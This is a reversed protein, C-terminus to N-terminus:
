RQLSSTQSPSSSLQTRISPHRLLVHPLIAAYQRLRCCTDHKRNSPCCLFPVTQQQETQAQVHPMVASSVSKPLSM